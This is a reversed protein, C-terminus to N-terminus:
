TIGLSQIGYSEQGTHVTYVTRRSACLVCPSPLSSIDLVSISDNQLEKGGVEERWQVLGALVSNESTPQCNQKQM